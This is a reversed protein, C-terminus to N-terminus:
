RGSPPHCDADIRATEVGDARVTADVDLVDPDLVDDDVADADLTAAGLAETDLPDSEIAGADAPLPAASVADLGRAVAAAEAELTLAVAGVPEEDSLM